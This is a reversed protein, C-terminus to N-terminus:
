IATILSMSEVATSNIAQNPLKTFWGSDIPYNRGMSDSVTGDGSVQVSTVTINSGSLGQTAMGIKISQIPVIIITM